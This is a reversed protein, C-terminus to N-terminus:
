KYVWGLRIVVLWLHVFVGSATRPWIFPRIALTTFSMQGDSDMTPQGLWSEALNMSFAIRGVFIFFGRNRFMRKAVFKM